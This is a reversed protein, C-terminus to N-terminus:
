ENKYLPSRTTLRLGMKAQSKGGDKFPCELLEAQREIVSIVYFSSWVDKDADEAVYFQMGTRVGDKKGVDVTVSFGSWLLEKGLIAVDGKEGHTAVISGTIPKQLLYEKYEEPVRPLGTPRKDFDQVRLPFLCCPSGQGLRGSNVYNCFRLLLDPEVLYVQEGWPVVVYEVPMLGWAKGPAESVLAIRDGKVEVTGMDTRKTTSVYGFKRSILWGSALGPFPSGDYFRGEWPEHSGAKLDAEIARKRPEIKAHFTDFAESSAEQEGAPAPKKADDAFLASAIVLPLILAIGVQGQM